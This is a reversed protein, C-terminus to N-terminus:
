DTPYRPGGSKSMLPIGVGAAGVSNATGRMDCAIHSYLTAFHYHDEGDTKEWFPSLDGHSDMKLIRKLSLLQSNYESNEDSSQIAFTGAKIISLLSDFAATRNVKVLKLNMKGEKFEEDQEVLAFKKITKTQVFMAGWNNARAKTLRTVMDTYPMSDMVHLIVRYKISLERTREEFQTYHIKERHLILFTGDNAVRSIVTHCTVGMDSGMCTFESTHLNYSLTARDLDALVISENEEEATIGLTQNKFESYREFKTSAEVMYSPTLISHASFPSVFWANAEHGETSNECVYQMRTHHLDPDKGCKPCVLQAEKWKITHINQKTIEEMSKDWGPIKIHQFYDPLFVTTCHACTALHYMRKATEAEKSVGYRSVTPTSFIKRIKDPKHQLRSVYVSGQTIDSKNWEDHIIANAPTSLAQTSSRTGKFFLFSDKGFQKMESNNMDPNVMRTLEPSDVIMPDIRTRNNKEADSSSPFTYIVSFDSRICCAAVAWRYAIESLGVQACKVIISTKAPDKLIETQFEHDKFTFPKGGLRTHKCIWEDLNSLTYTNKIGAKLRDFSDLQLNNPM